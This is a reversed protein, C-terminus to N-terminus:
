KFGMKEVPSHDDTFYLTEPPPVLDSIIPAMERALQVVDEREAGRLLASRVSELSRPKCFAFLVHNGGSISIVKLSPFVRLLTAATSHLIALDERPDFVNMVVLGDDRLHSRVSTFFEETVLYFPPYPSGNYIDIEIIEYSDKNKSLWSRADAVFIRLREGDPRLDFFREGAEVVGPDIEVADFRGGPATVMTAAIGAGAGMGLVLVRRPPVILPGLAFLDYYYGTWGGDDSSISHVYWESNLVLQLRSGRRIVRVLNYPSERAWIDHESSIPSPVVFLLVLPSLYFWDRWRRTVFGAAGITLSSACATVLTAHTGLDPILVFSTAFVGVISGVTSLSSVVGSMM